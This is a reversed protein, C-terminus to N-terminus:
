PFQYMNKSNVEEGEHILLKIYKLTREYQLSVVLKPHGGTLKVLTRLLLRGHFIENALYSM